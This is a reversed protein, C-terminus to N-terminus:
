LHKNNKSYITNEQKKHDNKRRKKKCDKNLKQVM